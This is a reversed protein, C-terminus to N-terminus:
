KWDFIHEQVTFSKPVFIDIWSMEVTIEAEYPRGNYSPNLSIRRRFVTDVGSGYQYLGSSSDYKLFPCTGGCPNINDTVTDIYCDRNFCQNIKPKSGSYDFWSDGALGNTDRINRIYEVAEEALYFAVVQNRATYSARMAYLTLNVPGWIAVSFVALSVLTELLTFGDICNKIKFKELYRM